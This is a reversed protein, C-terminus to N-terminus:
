FRNLKFTFFRKLYLQREETALSLFSVRLRSLARKSDEADGDPPVAPPYQLLQRAVQDAFCATSSVSPPLSLPRM